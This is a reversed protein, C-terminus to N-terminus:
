PATAATLPTLKATPATIRGLAAILEQKRSLTDTAIPAAFWREASRADALPDKRSRLFGFM